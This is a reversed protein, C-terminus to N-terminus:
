LTVLTALEVKSAAYPLLLRFERTGATKGKSPMGRGLFIGLGRVLDGNIRDSHSVPVENLIGNKMSARQERRLDDLRKCSASTEMVTITMVMREDNTTSVTVEGDASVLHEVADSEIEYSIAEDESYGQVREGGVLLYNQPLSFLKATQFNSM